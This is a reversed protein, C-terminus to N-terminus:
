LDVAKNAMKRAKSPIIGQWGFWPPLGVFELPYFTMKLAIVNTAWGVLAALFPITLYQLWIVAM